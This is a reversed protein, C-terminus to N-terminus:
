DVGGERSAVYILLNGLLVRHIEIWAGRVPPSLAVAAVIFLRRIEIWAGRM